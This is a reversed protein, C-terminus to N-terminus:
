KGAGIDRALEAVSDFSPTTSKVRVGKIAHKAEGLVNEYAMEIAESGDDLGWDRSSHRHLYEPSQYQAIRKLAAYLRHELATSVTAM